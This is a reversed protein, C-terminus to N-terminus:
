MTADAQGGDAWPSVTADFGTSGKSDVYPLDPIGGGGKYDIPIDINVILQDDVIFICDDGLDYHYNLVTTEDRLLFQLNLRLQQDYISPEGGDYDIVPTSDDRTTQRAMSRRADVPSQPMDHDPLGFTNISSTLISVSDVPSKLQWKDILQLCPTSTHRLPTLWCGDTLGAVTAKVSYMYNAGRIPIRVNLKWVVPQPQAHLIQEIVTQKYKDRDEWPVLDVDLGTTVQTHNLTDANMLEPEAALLHMGNGAPNMPVGSLYDPVAIIGYLEDDPLPQDASACVHVLASDPRTMGLFEIHSYEAPSYDFVVGTFQGRPLNLETYNIEATTGRRYRGSLDDSMFWWTMGGPVETALSWDTQLAVQRFEDTYVWLDRRCATTALVLIALLFHTIPFFNSCHSYHPRRALAPNTIRCLGSLPRHRLGIIRIIRKEKM